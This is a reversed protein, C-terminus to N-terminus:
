RASLLMTLRTLRRPHSFIGRIRVRRALLDRIVARGHAQLPDPMGWRLPAATMALLREGDAEILLHASADRGDVVLVRGLDIRLSVAVGADSAAISVLAPRLLAERAPVRALNQEILGGLMAALGSPEPDALVVRATM